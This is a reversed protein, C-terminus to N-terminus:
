KNLVAGNVPFVTIALLFLPFFIYLTLFLLDSGAVM